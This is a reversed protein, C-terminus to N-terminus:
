LPRAYFFPSAKIGSDCNGGQSKNGCDPICLILSIDAIIQIEFDTDTLDM